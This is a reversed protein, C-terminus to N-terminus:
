GNFKMDSFSVEKRDVVLDYIPSFWAKLANIKADWTTWKTKNGLILIKM